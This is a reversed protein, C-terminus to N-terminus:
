LSLTSASFRPAARRFEEDHRAADAEACVADAKDLQAVTLVEHYSSPAPLFLPPALRRALSQPSHRIKPYCAAREAGKIIKAPRRRVRGFGCINGGM